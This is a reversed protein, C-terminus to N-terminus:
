ESVTDNGFLKRLERDANLQASRVHVINPRRAPARAALTSDRSSDVEDNRSLHVTDRARPAAASSQSGAPTRRRVESRANTANASSEGTAVRIPADDGPLPRVGDSHTDHELEDSDTALVDFKDTEEDM